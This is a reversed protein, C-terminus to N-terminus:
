GDEYTRKNTIGKTPRLDLSSSSSPVQFKLCVHLMLVIFLFVRIKATSGLIVFKHGKKSEAM